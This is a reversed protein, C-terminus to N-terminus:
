GDNTNALPDYNFATIDTCGYIIASCPNFLGLDSWDNQPLIVWESDYMDTGASLVWDNNGQNINCKRVLTHDKTANSIGAVSWGSGPDGNWDGIFDLIRFVM